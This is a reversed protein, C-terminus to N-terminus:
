RAAAEAPADSIPIDSSVTDEAAAIPAEEANDADTPFKAFLARSSLEQLICRRSAAEALKFHVHYTDAKVNVECELRPAQDLSARSSAEPPPEESADSCLTNEDDDSAVSAADESFLTGRPGDGFSKNPRSDPQPDPRPVECLSLRLGSPTRPPARPREPPSAIKLREAKAALCRLLNLGKDLHRRKSVAHGQFPAVFNFKVVAANLARRRANPSQAAAAALASERRGRAAARGAEPSWPAKEEPAAALTLM